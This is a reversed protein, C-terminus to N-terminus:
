SVVGNLMNCTLKVPQGKEDVPPLIDFVALLAAMMGWM